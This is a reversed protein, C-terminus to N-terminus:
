EEHSSLDLFEPESERSAASTGTVLSDEFKPSSLADNSLLNGQLQVALISARRLSRIYEVELQYQNRQAILVQPYAAAMQQFSALYLGYAKRARPLLEKEYREARLKENSYQAYLDAFQASLAFRIRNLEQKSREVNAEAILINGQNRNFIPLVIGVEFFGEWGVDENTSEFQEFNYGAGARFRLDPVRAAKAFPVSAEAQQLQLAATRAQPSKELLAELLSERDLQLISSADLKGAVNQLEMEPQGIIAAMAKWIYERENVAARIALDAAEAEIEAELLDPQDAAGVNFLEATTKAAEQAVKLLDSRVKMETQAALLQFYTTRVANLLITRQAEGLTEAQRVVDEFVQKSKGLKGGLLVDQEVFFMHESTEGPARFSLQEAMYGVIPNPYLGAQQLRGRAAGVSAQAQALTPNSKLALTELQELTIGEFQFVRVQTDPESHVDEKPKEEPAHQHQHEQQAFLRFSFLLIMLFIFPSKANM